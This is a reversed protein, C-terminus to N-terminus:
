LQIPYWFVFLLWVPLRPFILRIVNGKPWYCAEGRSAAWKRKRHTQMLHLLPKPARRQRQAEKLEVLVAQPRTQNGM